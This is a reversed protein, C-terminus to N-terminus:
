VNNEKELESDVLARVSEYTHNLALALESILIQRADSLMKKEGTSLGKQKERKTLMAVVVAVEDAKGSKIRESNERFRHNWSVDEDKYEAKLGEAIVWKAEDPSVVKRMGSTESSDVPVMVKMDGVPMRMTYYLHKKGMVVTEEVADIVGAGHGPYVVKDGIKYM